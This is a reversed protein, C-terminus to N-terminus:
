LNLRNFRNLWSGRRVAPPLGHYSSAGESRRRLSRACARRSPSRGAGGWRGGLRAPSTSRLVWRPKRVSSGELARVFSRDPPRLKVGPRRFWGLRPSVQPRSGCCARADGGRKSPRRPDRAAANGDDASSRPNAAVNVAGSAGEGKLSLPTIRVHLNQCGDLLPRRPPGWDHRGTRAAGCLDSYATSGCEAGAKSSADLVALPVASGDRPRTVSM